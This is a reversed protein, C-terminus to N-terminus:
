KQSTPEKPSINITMETQKKVQFVLRLSNYNLHVRYMSLLSNQNQATSRKSLDCLDRTAGATIKKSMQWNDLHHSLVCRCNWFMEQSGFWTFTPESQWGRFLLSDSLTFVSEADQFHGKTKLKPNKWEQEEGLHCTVCHVPHIVNQLSHFSM